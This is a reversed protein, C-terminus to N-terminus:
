WTFVTSCFSQASRENRVKRNSVRLLEPIGLSGGCVLCRWNADVRQQVTLGTNTDGMGRLM